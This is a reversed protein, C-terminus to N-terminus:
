MLPAFVKLLRGVFRKFINIKKYEQETILKSQTLTSNFDQEIDLISNHQYIYVCNEYNLYLSRYDLNVTGIIAYIDDCILMKAHIFGPQYQYIKVGAKILKYYNSITVNFITKKDPVAPTIIKVDVGRKATNCIANRLEDDLILYPTTIHVYKKATSLTHLILNKSVDEHDHPHDGVPMFYGNSQCTHTLSLYPSFDEVTKQKFNWMKLFMKTFSTVAQGELKVGVDKWHKFKEKKNIYEDALNVGGTFVIQNDVICLKRHDRNNQESYILARVPMFM